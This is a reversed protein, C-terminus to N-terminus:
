GQRRALSRGLVNVLFATTIGFMIIGTVSSMAGLLRFGPELTIDGYGLTTYSVMGFYIAAEYGEIAGVYLLVFSWIYVQLTHSFVPAMVALCLWLFDRVPRRVPRAAQRPGLIELVRSVVFLHVVTCLILLVGGWAIQGLVSLGGM